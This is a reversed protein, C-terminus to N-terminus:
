VSPYAKRWRIKAKGVGTPSTGLLTATHSGPELQMRPMRSRPSLLGGAGGGNSMTVSTVWPRADVTVTVGAPIDNQFQIFPTGDILIGSGVLPGTFDVMAPTPKRGAVHFVYPPIVAATSIQIPATFPTVFGGGQPELWGVDLYEEDDDYFMESVTQFDATIPVRGSLYEVGLPAEFRRPRGYVIRTRDNVRYRLGTVSGPQSRYADARWADALDEIASLASDEGDGDTFLKFQWLGPDFYDIGMTSGDANPRPQDQNRTGWAPPAVDSEHEVPCDAGFVVGGLEWQYNALEITM